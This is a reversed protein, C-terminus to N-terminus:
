GRPFEQGYRAIATLLIIGENTQKYYVIVQKEPYLEGEWEAAYPFVKVRGLTGPRADVAPWGENLTQEIEELTVGRQAMRKQLHPHLDAETLRFAQGHEEDPPSIM